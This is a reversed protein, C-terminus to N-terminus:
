VTSLSKALMAGRDLDADTVSTRGTRQNSLTESLEVLLAFTLTPWLLRREDVSFPLRADYCAIWAQISEITLFAINAPDPHSILHFAVDRLRHGGGGQDVDVIGTLAENEFLFHCLRADGHVQTRLLESNAGSRAIQDFLAKAPASPFLGAAIVEAIQGENDELDSALLGTNTLDTGVGRKHLRALADASQTAAAETWDALPAGPVFDMLYGQDQCAPLTKAAWAGDDLRHVQPFPLGERRLEDLRQLLLGLRAPQDEPALKFVFRRGGSSITAALGHALHLRDLVPNKLGFRSRVHALLARTLGDADGFGYVTEIEQSPDLGYPSVVLPPPTPHIMALTFHKM